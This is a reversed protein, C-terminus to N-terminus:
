GERIPLIKTRRVRVHSNNTVIIKGYTSNFAAAGQHVYEMDLPKTFFFTVLTMTIVHHFLLDKKTNVLMDIGCQTYIIRNMIHFYYKSGIQFCPGNHM